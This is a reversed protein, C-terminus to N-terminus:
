RSIRPCKTSDPGKRKRANTRERRNSIETESKRKRRRLRAGITIMRIDVKELDEWKGTRKETRSRRNNGGVETEKNWQKGNPRRKTYKPLSEWNDTDGKKRKQEKGTEMQQRMETAAKRITSTELIEGYTEGEERKVEGRLM